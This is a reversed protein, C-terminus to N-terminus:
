NANNKRTFIVVIVVQVHHDLTCWQSYWQWIIFIIRVLRTYHQVGTSPWLHHGELARCCSHCICHESQSQLERELIPSSRPPCQSCPTHRWRNRCWCYWELIRDCLYEYASDMWDSVLTRLTCRATTEHRFGKSGLGASCKRLERHFCFWDHQSAVRPVIWRDLCGFEPWELFHVSDQHALPERPEPRASHPGFCIPCLQPPLELEVLWRHEMEM